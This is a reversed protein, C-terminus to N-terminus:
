YFHDGSSFLKLFAANTLRGHCQFPLMVTWPDNELGRYGGSGLVNPLVTFMHAVTVVGYWICLSYGNKALM